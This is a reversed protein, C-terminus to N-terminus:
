GTKLGNTLIEGYSRPLLYSDCKYALSGAQLRQAILTQVRRSTVANVIGQQGIGVELWALALLRGGQEVHEDMRGDMQGDGKAAGM